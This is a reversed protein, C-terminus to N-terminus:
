LYLSRPQHSFHPIPYGNSHSKTNAPNGYGMVQFNPLHPSLYVRTDPSSSSGYHSGGCSVWFVARTSCRDSAFRGSSIPQMILAQSTYGVLFLKPMSLRARIFARTKNSLCELKRIESAARKFDSLMTSPLSNRYVAFVLTGTYRGNGGSTRSESSLTRFPLKYKQDPSDVTALYVSLGRAM